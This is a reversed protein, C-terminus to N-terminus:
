TASEEKKAFCGKFNTRGAINRFYKMFRQIMMACNKVDTVANHSNTRDVGLYDCLMDQNYKGPEDKNEFFLFAIYM